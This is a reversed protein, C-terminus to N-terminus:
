KLYNELEVLSIASELYDEIFHKLYSFKKSMPKDMYMDYAFCIGFGGSFINNINGKLSLINKANLKDKIKLYEEKAKQHKENLKKIFEEFSYAKYKNMKYIKAANELGSITQLNFVKLMKDFENSFFYYIHGQMKNFSKMTDLYGLIINNSIKEHNFEFIGGLNEKPSIVKLYVNKDVMRRSFGIGNIDAVIINKYGKEVLMNIPVNDYLGGDMYETDGIKQAKFIPFCASALLFEVMEEKPIENKFVQLPKKDKVSYTVLGFDIKSKYIKDVDIYKNITERLPTNDIGKNKTFDSVFARMNSLDFLDKNTDVKDNIEMIDNIKINKYLDIANNIDGQLMLAGNLSGISAGSIACIKIGLEELAKWIGIQYAGKTGGGELVLAYEKKVM